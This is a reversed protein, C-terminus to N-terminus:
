FLRRGAITAGHISVFGALLSLTFDVKLVRDLLLYVAFGVLVAVGYILYDRAIPSMADKM